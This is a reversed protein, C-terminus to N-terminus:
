HLPSPPPLHGASIFVMHLTYVAVRLSVPQSEKDFNLAAYLAEFM